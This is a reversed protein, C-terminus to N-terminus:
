DVAEYADLIEDAGFLGLVPEGDVTLDEQAAVLADELGDPTAYFTVVVEVDEDIFTGMIYEIVPGSEATYMSVVAVSNETTDTLLTTMPEDEYLNLYEDSTWYAEWGEPTDAADYAVIQFGVNGGLRSGHDDLRTLFIQDSPEQSTTDSLVPDDYREDIAWDGGWTIETGFQPSEYVGDEVVGLDAYANPTADADPLEGNAVIEDVEDADVDEFVADGDRTVDDQVEAIADGLDDAPALLATVVIADSEDEATLYLGYPDGGAVSGLYIAYGDRRGADEDLTVYTVGDGALDAIAEDLVDAIEADDTRYVFTLYADHTVDAVVVREIGAAAVSGDEDLEWDGSWAIEQDTLESVYTDARVQAAAIEGIAPATVGLSLLATLGLRATMMRSHM